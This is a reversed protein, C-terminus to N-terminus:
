SAARPPAAQSSRKGFRESFARRGRRSGDVSRNDWVMHLYSRRPLRAVERVSKRVFRDGNWSVTLVAVDVGETRRSVEAM